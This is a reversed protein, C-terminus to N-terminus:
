IVLDFHGTSKTLVLALIVEKYFNSYSYLLLLMLIIGIM